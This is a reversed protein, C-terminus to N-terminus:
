SLWNKDTLLCISINKLTKYVPWFCLVWFKLDRSRLSDFMICCCYSCIPVCVPGMLFMGFVFSYLGSLEASCAQHDKFSLLCSLCVWISLPMHTGDSLVWICTCVITICNFFIFYLIYNWKFSIWSNAFVPSECNNATLLVPLVFLFWHCFM